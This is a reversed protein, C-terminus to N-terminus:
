AALAIEFDYEEIASSTAGMQEAQRRGNASSDAPRIKAVRWFHTSLELSKQLLSIPDQLRSPISGFRLYMKGDHALHDGVRSWVQALSKSFQDPSGHSIQSQVGYEVEPANGLFWHRLWQDSIYTSMGYYAPSTIVLNINNPLRAYSRALRSDGAYISSTGLLRPTTALGLRNVRRQIVDVINVEPAYLKKKKWYRVSYAPKSSFTRPMQNSFYSPKQPDKTLPGHLAGLCVARLVNAADSRKGVLGRRLTCLSRLTNQAFAWEWFEGCPIDAARYSDLIERALNIVEESRCTAIKARAIAIAIPSCDIGFV